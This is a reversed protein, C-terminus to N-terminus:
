LILELLMVLMCSFIIMLAIPNNLYESVSSHVNSYGIGAGNNYIGINYVKGAVVSTFFWSVEGLIQYRGAIPVVFRNTGTDFNNGIDYEESDLTVLTWTGSTLNEQNASLYVWCEPVQGLKENICQWNSGDSVVTVEACYTNLRTYTEKPVGDDNPFNFTETGNGDLTILNYNADTKVFHYTLGAYGVATPLTLTYASAASVKILGAEAVTLTDTTTKTTVNTSIASHQASTLHYYEDTTGGQLNGLYAHDGVKTGAFFRDTVMDIVTFSSGSQPVIIRGILCGFDTLHDPKSPEKTVQAEALSYSGVGYRVYVDNDDIHKYIWFVGYKNNGVTGLTGDQADYHLYDITNRPTDEIFTAGNTRIPIYTTASSDYADLSFKNIGGFATGAAMTFNNTAKYSITSGGNLEVSRLTMARTHLKKVGDQFNFGGSIYHVNDSGDKMVKGIPINRKDADYPNTESLSITPSGGNYNLCIFYTTNAATISQNAQEALTVKVLAGTLSDTTRLLATLAAVTFTGTTGETIEGGSVVMPSDAYKQIEELDDVDLDTKTESLTRVAYTDDATLKIFSPSVYTLGSINTLATDLPQYTASIDPIDGAELTAWTPVGSSVQRLFKNTATANVSLMSFADVGTGYILENAGITLGALATLTADYAQVDTGIELNVTAKFTTEDADDLITRAFATLDATTYTDSATLYLMKNAATTLGAISALGADYAQIDTGIVLGLNTRAGSATSAGTGGDAVTIDTIGTITGSTIEVYHVVDSGGKEHSAKHPKPEHLNAGTMDKHYNRAM